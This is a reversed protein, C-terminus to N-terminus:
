SAGRQVAMRVSPDQSAEARRIVVRARRDRPWGQALAALTALLTQSTAPLTRWPSWHGDAGAVRLLAELVEPARSARVLAKVAAARLGDALSLNGVLALLPARVDLPARDTVAGLALTVVGPDEDGLASALADPPLRALRLALRVAERRVRPDAHLLWPLPDIDTPPEDIQALLSLLNRTVYWREDALREVVLPAIAGGVRKLRDFVQRRIHRDSSELLLDLVPEISRGTLHPLLADLSAPDHGLRAAVEEVVEPSRLRAWIGGAVRSPELGDLLAVLRPLEGEDITDRTAREVAPGDQELELAMQLVRLPEPAEAEPALSGPGPRTGAARSMQSLMRRYDEPNPDELDWGRLLRQV